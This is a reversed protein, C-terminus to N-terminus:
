VSPTASPRKPMGRPKSPRQGSAIQLLLMIRQKQGDDLEGMVAPIVMPKSEIITKLTVISTLAAEELTSSAAEEIANWATAPLIKRLREIQEASFSQMLKRTNYIAPMEAAMRREDFKSQGNANPKPQGNSSAGNAKESAKADIVDSTQLDDDDEDQEEDEDDDELARTPSFTQALFDFLKATAEDGKRRFLGAGVAMAIPLASTMIGSAASTRDTGREFMLHQGVIARDYERQMVYTQAERDMANRFATWGHQAILQFNEYHKQNLESTEYLKTEAKEAREHAKTIQRIANAEARRANLRSDRALATAERRLSRFGLRFEKMMPRLMREARLDAAEVVAMIFDPNVQLHMAEPRVEMGGQRAYDVSPHVSMSPPLAQPVAPRAAQPAPTDFRPRGPPFPSPQRPAAIPQARPPPEDDEEEEEDEDEDEDEEDGVEDGEEQEEEDVDEEAQDLDDDVDGDEIETELYDPDITPDVTFRHQATFGTKSITFIRYTIKWKNDYAHRIGRARVIRAIDILGARPHGDGDYELEFTQFVGSAPCDPRAIAEVQIKRLERLNRRIFGVTKGADVNLLEDKTPFPWAPTSVILDSLPQTRAMRRFHDYFRRIRTL